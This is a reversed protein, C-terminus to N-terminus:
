YELRELCYIRNNYWSGLLIADGFSADVQNAGRSRRNFFYWVLWNGEFNEKKNMDLNKFKDYM